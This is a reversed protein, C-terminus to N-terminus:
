QESFPLGPDDVIDSEVVYYEAGSDALCQRCDVLRSQDVWYLGVSGKISGIQSLAQVMRDRDATAETSDLMDSLVVVCVKTKGTSVGPLAYIYDLTDALAAYVRSGVPDSKEQLFQKLAASDGFRRRLGQPSGEWLLTRDNASLQSIVIRDRPEMRTRFFQEASKIFFKYGLEDGGFMKDTFSGSTDLVFALIYDRDLTDLPSTEVPVYQECGVVCGFLCALAIPVNRM